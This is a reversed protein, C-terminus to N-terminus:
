GGSLGPDGGREDAGHQPRRLVDHGVAGGDDQGRPRSRLRVVSGIVLVVTSNSTSAEQFHSFIWCCSAQSVEDPGGSTRRALM